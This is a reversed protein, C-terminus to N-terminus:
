FGNNDEWITRIKVIADLANERNVSLGENIIKEIIDLQQETVLYKQMYGLKKEYDKLKSEGRKINDLVGQRSIGTNEAIESLSYDLDYYMDLMNKQKKTLMAGYLELLVSINIDKQERM